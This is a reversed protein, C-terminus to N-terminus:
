GRGGAELSFWGGPLLCGAVVVEADLGRCEAEARHAEDRGGADAARGGAKVVTCNM